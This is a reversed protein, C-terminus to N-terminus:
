PFHKLTLREKLIEYARNTQRPKLYSLGIPRATLDALQLGTSNVGKTKFIPVFKCYQFNHNPYGIAGRNSTIREFALELGKDEQKGRSEFVVHVTKNKQGKSFLHELLREMCFLLSLEYPNDPYAYRKKLKTKDIVSAIIHMNASSMLSNLDQYFNVRLEADSRLVTFENKEKRIENEHLVILDHGFYKFKFNQFSPVIDTVYDKKHIICFSLCFIPYFKNIASLNHDGSEDVYVIYDSFEEDVM